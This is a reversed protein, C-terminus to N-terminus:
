LGTNTNENKLIDGIFHANNITKKKKCEQNNYTHHLSLRYM